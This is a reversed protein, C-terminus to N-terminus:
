YNPQEHQKCQCGGRHEGEEVGHDGNCSGGTQCEADYSSSRHGHNRLRGSRHFAHLRHSLLRRRPLVYNADATPASTCATTTGIDSAISYRAYRRSNSLSRSALLAGLALLLRPKLLLPFLLRPLPIGRVEEITRASYLFDHERSGMWMYQPRQHICHGM